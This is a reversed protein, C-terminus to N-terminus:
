SHKNMYAFKNRRLKDAHSYSMTKLIKKSPKVGLLLLATSILLVGCVKLVTVIIDENM